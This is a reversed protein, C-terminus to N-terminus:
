IRLILNKTPVIGSQYKNRNKYSTKLSKQWAVPRSGTLRTASTSWTRPQLGSCDSTCYLWTYLVAVHVTCCHSCYLWTYLVAVHVTWPHTFYLWMFMCYLVDVHVTCYLRTYLAAVHVYLVTCGLTCYLWMCMCYLVALHVTCGRTCVLGFLDSCDSTVTCPM